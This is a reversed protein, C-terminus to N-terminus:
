YYDIERETVRVPDGDEWVTKKSWNLDMDYVYKYSSKVLPSGDGYNLIEEIENGYEDYKYDATIRDHISGDPNYGIDALHNGYKDMKGMYMIKGNEGYQKVEIVNGEADYDTTIKSFKEVGDQKYEREEIVLGMDNYRYTKRSVFSGNGSWEENETKRSREDYKFIHKAKLTGDPNLENELVCEGRENYKFMHRTLLKGYHFDNTELLNGANDYESIYNWEQFGNSKYIQWYLRNGMKDVFHVSSDQLKGYTDYSCSGILNNHNDYRYVIRASRYPLQKGNITNGGISSTSELLYGAPNYKKITTHVLAGKLVTGQIGKEAKFGRTTISKVRGRLGEAKLDTANANAAPKKLNQALATACSTALLLTITFVRRMLCVEGM